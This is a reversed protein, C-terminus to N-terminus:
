GGRAKGGVVTLRGFAAALARSKVREADTEGAAACDFIAAAMRRRLEEADTADLGMSRVESLAEALVADFRALDAADYVRKAM